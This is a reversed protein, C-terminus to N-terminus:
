YDDAGGSQLATGYKEYADEFKKALDAEGYKYLVRQLEGLIVVNIQLERGLEGKQL